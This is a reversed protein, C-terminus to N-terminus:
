FSKLQDKTCPLKVLDVISQIIADADNSNIEAGGKADCCDANLKNQEQMDYASSDNTWACLIVVDAINVKGDCNVDGYTPTLNSSTPAETAPAATTETNNCSALVLVSVLMLAVILLSLFRKM